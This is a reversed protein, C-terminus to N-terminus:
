GVGELGFEHLAEVEGTLYVACRAILLGGCLSEHRADISNAFQSPLPTHYERAVFGVYSHQYIVKHRLTYVLGVAHEGRASLISNKQTLVVGINAESRQTAFYAKHVVLPPLIELM